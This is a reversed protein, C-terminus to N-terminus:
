NKWLRVKKSESGGSKGLRYEMWIESGQEMPIVKM